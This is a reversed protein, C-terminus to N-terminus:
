SLVINKKRGKTLLEPHQSIFEAQQAEKRKLSVILESENKPHTMRILDEPSVAGRAALAFALETAEHVFAPSCSHSDIVAHLSKPLAHMNFRVPKVGHVPTEEVNEPESAAAEPGVDRAPVWATLTDPYYAKLMKLGLNGLKEVSREVSVARDKFRPSGTRVLTESHAQSRVGSEGRGALTPTMGGIEDFMQNIEHLSEWLGPPLDPQASQMKANPNPESLWGGPKGLRSMMSQTVGASGSFYRPPNEQRRLLLNIGDLRRNLAIQLLGVNSIESRGWFYGNLKNPSFDVYPHCGRLPNEPDNVGKLSKNKLDIPDAFLNRHQDRGWIIGDGQGAMMQITTYDQREDDWVWLEDVQIMSALVQPSMDPRPGGLWDVWGQVKPAGAQNGAQLPYLGGLVVQKLMNMRDPRDENRTVSAFNMAQRMLAERASTDHTSLLDRFSELTYWSTQFFAQQHDLTGLDEREVGMVEPQILSSEFGSETWLLKIFTKGKVLSWLVAEEVESDVEGGTMYEHLLAVAAQGMAHETPGIDGYGQIGWSLDVPSYLWSALNDIYGFTKPYTQANGNPDGTLFIARQLSGRQIREVRSASCRAIVELAFDAIKRKPVKM